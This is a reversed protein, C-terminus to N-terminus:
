TMAVVAVAEVNEDDGSVDVVLIAKKILLLLWGEKKHCYSPKANPLTTNSEM